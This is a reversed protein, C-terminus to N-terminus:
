LYYVLQRPDHPLYECDNILCNLQFMLETAPYLMKKIKTIFM